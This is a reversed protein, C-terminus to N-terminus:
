GGGGGGAAGAGGGTQQAGPKGSEVSEIRKVEGQIHVEM